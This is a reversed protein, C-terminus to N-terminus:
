MLLIGNVKEKFTEMCGCCRLDLIGIFSDESESEVTERRLSRQSPLHKHQTFLCSSKVGRIEVLLLIISYGLQPSPCFYITVILM